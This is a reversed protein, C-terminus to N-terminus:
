GQSVPQRPFTFSLARVCVSPTPLWQEGPSPWGSYFGQSCFGSFGAQSSASSFWTNVCKWHCPQTVTMPFIHPQEAQGCGPYSPALCEAKFPSCVTARLSRCHSPFILTSSSTVLLREADHVLISFTDFVLLCFQLVKYFGDADTDATDRLGMQVAGVPEKHLSVLYVSLIMQCGLPHPKWVPWVERRHLHLMWTVLISFKDGHLYDEWVPMQCSAVEITRGVLHNM